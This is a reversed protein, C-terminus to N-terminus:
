CVGVKRPGRDGASVLAPGSLFLRRRLFFYYDHVYVFQRGTQAAIRFACLVYVRGTARCCNEPRSARCNPNTAWVCVRISQPPIRGRGATSLLGKPHFAKVASRAQVM